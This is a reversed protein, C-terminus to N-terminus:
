FEHKKYRKFPTGGMRSSPNSMDSPASGDPLRAKAFGPSREVGLSKLMVACRSKEFGEGCKVGNQTTM